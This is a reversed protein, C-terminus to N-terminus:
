QIADRTIKSIVFFYKGKEKYKYYITGGSYKDSINYTDYTESDVDVVSKSETNHGILAMIRYKDAKRKKDRFPDTECHVLTILILLIFTYKM